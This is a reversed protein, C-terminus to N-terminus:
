ETLLTLIAPEARKSVEHRLAHIAAVLPVPDAAIVEVNGSDALFSAGPLYHVWAFQWTVGAVAHFAQLAGVHRYARRECGLAEGM